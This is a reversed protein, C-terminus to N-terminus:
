NPSVVGGNSVTSGSGSGGLSGGGGGFGGSGSGGGGGQSGDVSAVADEEAAQYAALTQEDASLAADKIRKACDATEAKSALAAQAQALAQGAAIKQDLNGEKDGVLLEKLAAVMDPGGNPYKAFIAQVLANTHGYRGAAPRSASFNDHRDPSTSTQTPLAFAASDIAVILAALAAIKMRTM